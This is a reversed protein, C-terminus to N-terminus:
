LCWIEYKLVQQVKLCMMCITYLLPSYEVLMNNTPYPVYQIDFYDFTFQNPILLIGKDQFLNKNSFSLHNYIKWHLQTDLRYFTCNRISTVKLRRLM